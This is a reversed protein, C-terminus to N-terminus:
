KGICFSGFIRGLLDDPTFEGTIENLALQTLRLEEAALEPTMKQQLLTLAQMIANKAKTIASLHRRRAFFIGERHDTLGALACLHKKLLSMGAGTKASLSILTRSDM